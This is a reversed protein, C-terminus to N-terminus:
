SKSATRRLTTTAPMVTCGMPSARSARALISTAAATASSSMSVPSRLATTLRVVRQQHRGGGLEQPQQAPAQQYVTHVEFDVVCRPM